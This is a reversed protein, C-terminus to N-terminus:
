KQFQIVNNNSKASATRMSHNPQRDLLRVLVVAIGVMPLIHILGSGTYDTALGLAWVVFLFVSITWHM